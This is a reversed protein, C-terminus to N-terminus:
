DGRKGRPPEIQGHVGCVSKFKPQEDEKWGQQLSLVSAM